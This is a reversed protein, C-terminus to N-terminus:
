HFSCENLIRWLHCAHGGEALLECHRSDGVDLLSVM